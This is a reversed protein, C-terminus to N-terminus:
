SRGAVAELPQALVSIFHHLLLARVSLVLALPTREPLQKTWGAALQQLGL